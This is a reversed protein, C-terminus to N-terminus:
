KLKKNINNKEGWRMRRRTSKRGRRMRRRTSKRGGRGPEKKDNRSQKIYPQSERGQESERGRKQASSRPVRAIIQRPIVPSRYPLRKSDKNRKLVLKFQEAYLEDNTIIMGVNRNLSDGLVQGSDDYSNNIAFLFQKINEFGNKVAYMHLAQNDMFKESWNNDIISGPPSMYADMRFANPTTFNPITILIGFISDQAMIITEGSLSEKTIQEKGEMLNPNHGPTNAGGIEYLTIQNPVLRLDTKDTAVVRSVINKKSKKFFSFSQRMGFYKTNKITGMAVSDGEVRVNHFFGAVKSNAGEGNNRYGYFDVTTNPPTNFKFKAISFSHIKDDFVMEIHSKEEITTTNFKDSFRTYLDNDNSVSEFEEKLFPAYDEMQTTKMGSIKDSKMEDTEGTEDTKM